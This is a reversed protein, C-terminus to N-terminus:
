KKHCFVCYTLSPTLVSVKGICIDELQNLLKLNKQQLCILDCFFLSVLVQFKNQLQLIQKMLLVILSCLVQEFHTLNVAEFNHCTCM